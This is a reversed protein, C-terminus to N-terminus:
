KLIQRLKSRIFYEKLQPQDSNIINLLEPPTPGSMNSVLNKTLKVGNRLSSLMRVVPPKLEDPLETYGNNGLSKVLLYTLVNDEADNSNFLDIIITKLDPDANEFNKLVPVFVKIDPNDRLIEKAHTKLESPLKDFGTKAIYAGFESPNKIYQQIVIEKLDNPINEFGERESYNVAYRPEDKMFEIARQRLREPLKELSGAYNIFDYLTDPYERLYDSRLLADELEKPLGDFGHKSFISFMDDVNASPLEKNQNVFIDKIQEPTNAFGYKHIYSFALPGPGSNADQIAQKKIIEPSNEFGHKFVYSFSNTGKSGVEKFSSDFMEPPVNEAGKRHVLDWKDPEEMNKIVLDKLQDTMGKFGHLQLTAKFIMRVNLFPENKLRNVIINQYDEPVKEFGYQRFINNWQIVDLDENMFFNKYVEDLKPPLDVLGNKRERILQIVKNRHGTLFAIFINQLNEDIGNFGQDRVYDFLSYLERAFLITANPRLHDPLQDLGVRKAYEIVDYDDDILNELYRKQKVPSLTELFDKPLYSSENEIVTEIYKKFTATDVTDKLEWIQKFPINENTSLYMLTYDIYSTPSAFSDRAQYIEIPSKVREVVEKAEKEVPTLPVPEFVGKEYPKKLAPFKDFFDYDELEWETNTDVKTWFINNYEDIDIITFPAKEAGKAEENKFYVFYTTFERDFRYHNYYNGGGKVGICLGYKNDGTAACSLKITTQKDTGQYIIVNEDEYRKAAKVDPDNLKSPYSGGKGVEKKNKDQKQEQEGEPETEKKIQSIKEHFPGLFDELKKSSKFLKIFQNRHESHKMFEHYLQAIQQPNAGNAMWRVLIPLDAHRGGDKKELDEYEDTTIEALKLVLEKAEEKKEKRKDGGTLTSASQGLTNADVEEEFVDCAEIIHDLPDNMKSELTSLKRLFNRITM